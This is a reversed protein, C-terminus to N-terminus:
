FRAHGDKGYKRVYCRIPLKLNKYHVMQCKNSLSLNLLTEKLVNNENYIGSINYVSRALIM